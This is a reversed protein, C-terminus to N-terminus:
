NGEPTQEQGGFEFDEARRQLNWCGDLDLLRQSFALMMLKITHDDGELEIRLEVGAGYSTAFRALVDDGTSAMMQPDSLQLTHRHLRTMTELYAKLADQLHGTITIFLTSLAEPVILGNLKVSGFVSATMSVM